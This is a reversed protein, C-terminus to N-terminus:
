EDHHEELFNKDLEAMPLESKYRHDQTKPTVPNLRAVISVQNRLWLRLINPMTRWTITSAVGCKDCFLNPTPSNLRGVLANAEAEATPIYKSFTAVTVGQPIGPRMEQITFYQYLPEGLPDAPNMERFAEVKYRDPM